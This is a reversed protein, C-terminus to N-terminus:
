FKWEGLVPFMKRNWDAYPYQSNIMEVNFGCIGLFIDDNEIELVMQKVEKDTVCMNKGLKRWDLYGLHWKFYEYFEYQNSLTRWTTKDDEDWGIPFNTHYRGNQIQYLPVFAGDAM